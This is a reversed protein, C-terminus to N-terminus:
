GTVDRTDRLSEGIQRMQEGLASKDQLRAKELADVSGSLKVFAEKVPALVEKVGGQAANRHKEFTENAIALFRQQNADLAQAALALFSKEVEDRLQVLAAEKESFSVARAANASREAALDMSFQKAEALAADRETRLAAMQELRTRAEAVDRDGAAKAAASRRWEFAFYAAAGIALVLLIPLSDTMRLCLM